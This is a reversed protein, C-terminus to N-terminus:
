CKRSTVSSVQESDAGNSVIDMIKLFSKGNFVYPVSMDTFTLGDSFMSGTWVGLEGGAAVFPLNRIFISNTATLGTTNINLMYINITVLSGIKVYSGGLTAISATNGGTEADAFEADFTGEEYDDLKNAAATGGLYAGGSLYLDKWRGASYGLSVAGDRVTGSSDGPNVTSNGVCVSTNIDTRGM